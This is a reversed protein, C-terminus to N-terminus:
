IEQARLAKHLGMPAITGGKVASNSATVLARVGSVYGIGAIMNGGALAGDRDDHMKYGALTSLELWPSNRDLLRMVRQRPLLQGRGEYRTRKSEEEARGKAEIARLEGVLGLMDERNKAYAESRVDLKSQIVTM